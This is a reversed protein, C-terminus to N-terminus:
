AERAITGARSALAAILARLAAPRVPKRLVEFGRARADRTLTDSANATVLAGARMRGDLPGACIRDLLELGLAGGQLHFDVLVVDADIARAAAEAEEPTSACHAQINWRSLLERMGELINPDDDVCLVRLGILTFARSARAAPEAKAAPKEEVYSREVRVGFASGRGPESRLTVSADLIKAIRDCISLGLGLGKEGWPSQRDLRRFEEFIVHQHEVPIGPGTDIVQFEVRKGSDRARCAVLITGSRTYRLANAAFNQLIRKLMRPDSRVSLKTERVRLEIGRTKALPAFQEELASLLVMAPMDVFEAHVGGADLRSIDLLADLLEEAAHLSSDVREALERMDKSREARARLAATFLRAANLPQLLDHSAAAVFRTKSLNARELQETREAVRQELTENVERLEDQIRKHATVDTFTMVFGGDPLPQGRGEIVRGDARRRESVHPTGSRMHALRKEVHVEVDGPGCWGRVANYRIMDAVPRGAQVLEEPYQFLDLYRQNWAILRMNADVVSIGQSMNEMMAELLERNFRLKQTAEDFLAVVEELRVGAGHLASTLVLRASSPGLAGSLERELAQLLALDAQPHAADASQNAVARSKQRRAHRDLLRDAAEAGLLRRALTRLDHVTASGPLLTTSARAAAHAPDLQKAALLREEVTPPHKLSVGVMTFVNALLSWFVGHTLTDPATFGFLAHPALLAFGFPGETVWSSMPGGASAIAPILLTYLWVVFGVLLGSFVGRASAGPWYVCAILAPAFQSVAAFALLGIAALSPTEPVTHFYAYATLLVFLIAVRRTWLITGSAAARDALPVLRNRWLMPLVLDNSIMTALAVSAVIVMGTAASFGGLYALLALGSHDRSLPFWLVFTDPAIGPAAGLLAAAAIPIVIVSVIVLYGSFWRRAKRLDELQACEVVGVLFQRPLCFIAAFSILTQTLFTMAHPVGAPLTRAAAIVPGIGRLEFLAFLGVACLAVLKVISETAVALVMGPHHESANVERTGFLSAFVALLLAVVLASDRFWPAGDGARHPEGTLVDISMAVAKLQLAMYPIAATLAIVTVLVAIYPSRGFRASLLDSISTANQAKAVSVLREFFPLALTFFLLPGLYIPLYSLGDRVASGVAGYFTWSSCYVALALSYIPARLRPRNPYLRTRDGWWAVAFLAGVYAASVLLLGWDSIL